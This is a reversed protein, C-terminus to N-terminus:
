SFARVEAGAQAVHCAVEIVRESDSDRGRDRMQQREM